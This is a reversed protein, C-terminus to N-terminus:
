IDIKAGAQAYITIFISDGAEAPAGLMAAYHLTVTGLPKKLLAAVLTDLGASRVSLYGPDTAVTRETLYDDWVRGSPITLLTVAPNGENAVTVTGSVSRGSPLDPHSPKVRIGVNNIAGNILDDAYEEDVYDGLNVDETGSPTTTSPVDPLAFGIIVPEVDVSLTFSDNICDFGSLALFALLAGAVVMARM